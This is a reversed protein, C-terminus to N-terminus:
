TGVIIYSTFVCPQIKNERQVHIPIYYIFMSIKFYLKGDSNLQEAITRWIENKHYADMYRPNSLDYLVEYQRVYEILFEDDM